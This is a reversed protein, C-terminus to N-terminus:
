NRSTPNITTELTIKVSNQQTETGSLNLSFIYANAGTGIQGANSICGSLELRLTSPSSIYNELSEKALNLLDGLELIDKKRKDIYSGRVRGLEPENENNLFVQDIADDSEPIM